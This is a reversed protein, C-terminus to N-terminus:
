GQEGRPMELDDFALLSVLRYLHLSSFRDLGLGTRGCVLLSLGM